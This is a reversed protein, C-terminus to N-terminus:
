KLSNTCSLLKASLPKHHIFVQWMKSKGCKGSCLCYTATSTKSFERNLTELETNLKTFQLSHEASSAITIQGPKYLQEDILTALMHMPHIHVSTSYFQRSIPGILDHGSLSSEWSHPCKIM